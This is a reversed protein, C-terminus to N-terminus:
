AFFVPQLGDLDIFEKLTMRVHISKETLSDPKNGAIGQQPHTQRCQPHGTNITFRTRTRCTIKINKTRKDGEDM